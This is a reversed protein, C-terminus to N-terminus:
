ARKLTKVLEVINTQAEVEEKPTKFFDFVADVQDKKVRIHARITHLFVYVDNRSTYRLQFCMDTETSVVHEPKKVCLTGGFISQIWLLVAPNKQVLTVTAAFSNRYRYIGVSGEGDFFGAIYAREAETASLAKDLDTEVKTRTYLSDDGYRKM